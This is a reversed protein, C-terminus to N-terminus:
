FIKLGERKTNNGRKSEHRANLAAAFTCDKELEAIM